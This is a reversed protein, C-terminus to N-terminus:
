IRIALMGMVHFGAQPYFYNQRVEEGGGLYGWTYGNSSYKTDLFNNLLVSASLERIFKPKWTYTMRLDNVTYPNIARGENASNDLYQKGVYKFLWSVEFSDIPKFNLSSGSIIRPSLAIDTNGFAINVENYEDWNLGYDYIVETYDSIRNESLTLNANWSLNSGIRVFGDLEIGTRYSRTVNTRLPAGVDNLAGTLVLQNKYNMLFYNASFTFSSNRIRYGLELNGLTEHKPIVNNTADIFDSRVPERNAVSYSAYAQHNNTISYSLGAKPNVFAYNEKFSFDFQKNEKGAAQYNISRLQLDIFANLRSNVQIQNKWFINFDRKESQNFYYQHGKSVTTAIEAWIVEGFHDGFYNNWAGGLTSQWKEREYNLSFTVGYFDNDLWRRRILDFSSVTDQGIIADAIGYNSFSDDYRFEEYYGRGHTYHLATQAALSETFRHSAHLQYHDQSYDDVQNEYTYINFTRNNSNLLNDTQEANWGEATATIMMATTDNELRSEPVGYWSQYTVENGGFVIAKLITKDGYYGGSLYYSSLDSTAREIFGDSKIKSVRGDFMFHKGVMGTGIGLTHRRSGFSGGSNILDAYPENQQTLTQMNISGGFAGAGNTSTGVGRQIQISQTSSAIDPVDVWFVGQSESDNYPIGNITVNIRTADSGRIRLGTYGIGTGADSTTVLSPSWNLLLPLDQGFNQKQINAKTLNSFTTASKESVRTAQIIIEDTLQSSENLDISLHTSEAFDIEQEWEAFGLFRVQLILKGATLNKIEFRGLEDTVDSKNRGEVIVTAGVLVEKTRVDRVVGMLNFQANSSAFILSMM